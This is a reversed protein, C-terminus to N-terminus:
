VIDSLRIRFSTGEDKGGGEELVRLLSRLSSRGCATADVECIWGECSNRSDRLPEGRILLGDDFPTVLPSHEMRKNDPSLEVHGIQFAVMM